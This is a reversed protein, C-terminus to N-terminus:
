NTALKKDKWNAFYMNGAKMFFPISGLYQIASIIALIKGFIIPNAATDFFYSLSGCLATSATGALNCYFFFASL